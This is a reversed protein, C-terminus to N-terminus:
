PRSAGVRPWDYGRRLKGGWRRERITGRTTRRTQVLGLHTAKTAAVLVESVVAVIFFGLLDSTALTVSAAFKTVVLEVARGDAAEFATLYTMGSDLADVLRKGLVLLGTDGIVLTTTKLVLLLISLTLALALHTAM